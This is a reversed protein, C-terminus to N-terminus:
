NNDLTDIIDKSRNRITVELVGTANTIMRQTIRQGIKKTALYIAVALITMPQKGSMLDQEQIRM